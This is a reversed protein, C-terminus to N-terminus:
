RTRRFTSTSISRSPLRLGLGGAGRGIGTFDGIYPSVNRGWWTGAASARNGAAPLEFTMLQSQLQLIKEELPQLHHRDFQIRETESRIKAREDLMRDYQQILLNGTHTLNGYQRELVNASWWSTNTEQHVRPIQARVLDTQADIYKGQKELNTNTERMNDLEQAVRAAINGSNLAPAVANEMRAMLTQAMSGAASKGSASAGGAASGSGAAGSASAGSPAPAGGQSYALMPNLGAAKLDGVARQYTTNAMREQFGMQQGVMERQFAMQQEAQSASFNMAKDASAQQFIRNIDAQEAEFGMAKDASAQQFQRNLEAQQASNATGERAIQLNAENAEQQGKYAMYGSAVGAAPALLPKAVEVIPKVVDLIGDLIGM